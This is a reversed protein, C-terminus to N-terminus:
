TKNSSLGNRAAKSEVFAIGAEIGDLIAKYEEMRSEYHERSVSGTEYHERQLDKVANLVRVREENLRKLEQEPTSLALRASRLSSRAATIKELRRELDSMQQHYSM